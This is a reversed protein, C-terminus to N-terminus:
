RFGKGVPYWVLLGGGTGQLCCLFSKQAFKKVTTDKKLLQELDLCSITKTWRPRLFSAGLQLITEGLYDEITRNKQTRSHLWALSAGMLPENLGTLSGWLETLYWRAVNFENKQSWLYGVIKQLKFHSVLSSSVVNENYIAVDISNTKGGIPFLHLLFTGLPGIVFKISRIRLLTAM